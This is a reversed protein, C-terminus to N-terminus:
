PVSDLLDMNNSSKDPQSRTLVQASNVDGLSPTSTSGDDLTSSAPVSYGPLISSAVQDAAQGVVPTVASQVIGTVMGSVLKNAAHNVTTGVAEGLNKNGAGVINGVTDGAVTSVGM